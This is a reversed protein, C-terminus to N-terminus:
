HNTFYSFHHHKQNFIFESIIKPAKFHKMQPGFKKDFKFPSGALNHGGWDTSCEVVKHSLNPDKWVGCRHDKGKVYDNRTIMPSLDNTLFNITERFSSKNSKDSGQYPEVPDKKSQLVMVPRHTSPTCGNNKWSYNATVAGTLLYSYDCYYNQSAEGGSSFGLTFLRGDEKLYADKIQHIFFDDFTKSVPGYKTNWQPYIYVFNFMNSYKDADLISHLNRPTYPPAGFVIIATKPKDSKKTPEVVYYVSKKKGKKYIKKVFNIKKAPKAMTKKRKAIPASAQKKKYLYQSTKAIETKSRAESPLSYNKFFRFLFDTANIETNQKGFIEPKFARAGPWSHGNGKLSCGIVKSSKKKNQFRDCSVTNLKVPTDKIAEVGNAKVFFNVSDKYSRLQYKGGGLYPVYKDKTGQFITLPTKFKPTCDKINMSHAVLGNAAIRHGFSCYALASMQAGNSFGMSYIKKKNIPHRAVVVDLLKTLFTKDDVKRNVSGLGKGVNWSKNIANPFILIYQYKDALKEPKLLWKTGNADSEYGHFVIVAPYKKKLDLKAPLYVYYEREKGFVSVKQKYYKAKDLIKAYTNTSNFALSLFCVIIFIVHKPSSITM